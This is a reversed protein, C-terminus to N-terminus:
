TQRAEADRVLDRHEARREGEAARASSLEDRRTSLETQLADANPLKELDDRLQRARGELDIKDDSARDILDNIASLREVLRASEREATISEKRATDLDRRANAASAKATNERAEAERLAEVASMYAADAGRAAEDASALEAVLKELRNRQELRVASAARADARKRFGDWRWLAGDRSVVRQGVALGDMLIRDIDSQSSVVGVTKLRAALAAPAVVFDSLPQVGFPLPPAGERLTQETWYAPADPDLAADLDDGLAAALAKEYGEDARVAELVAPFSEANGTGLVKELGTKEATLTSVQARAADKPQRANNVDARAATAAREAEALAEETELLTAEAVRIADLNGGTANLDAFVQELSAKEDRAKTAQGELRQISASATEIAASLARREAETEAVLSRTREFEAETTALIEAAERHKAEAEELRGQESGDRVSLGEVERDIAELSQLADEHLERERKLDSEASQADQRLRNLTANAREAEASLNDREITLRHLAASSQAEEERLPAIAAEAEERAILAAAAARATDEVLLSSEDADNAAADRQSTAEIWKLYAVGASTRRIDGSLNRYRTAQRAQRALATKQAELEGTVDELRALNQEAARLRLEAEHRRSHLGTIGAAEELLRRRNEPKANILESIQGQRVLAPSNAGSSADAFLLQVDKARVEKSNIRYISQAGDANKIIRRSIELVACDNYEAPASRDSNDLTLVVEAWNRAPRMSTGAFVVDSMGSSRLAKASTAGMVWRLAELLNSKGCGNPGVIGTLGERVDLDTTDVFSKFGILRLNTFRVDLTGTM